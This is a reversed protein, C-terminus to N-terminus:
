LRRFWGEGIMGEHAVWAVVADVDHSTECASEVDSYATVKVLAHELVFEMVVFSEGVTVIHNAQEIQFGVVVNV